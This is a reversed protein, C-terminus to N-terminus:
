HADPKEATNLGLHAPLQSGPITPTDFTGSVSRGETNLLAVPLVCNHTCKEGGQGVGRVTLPRERRKQEPRLGARLALAAQQRVWEDGALNGVSGIDLLLAPKGNPLRTEVHYITSCPVQSEVQRDGAPGQSFGPNGTVWENADTFSSPIVVYGRDTDDEYESTSGVGASLSSLPTGIQFHQATTREPTLLQSALRRAMAEPAHTQRPTQPAVNVLEAGVRELLNPAEQGTAPNLQTVISTDM